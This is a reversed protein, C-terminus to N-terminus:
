KDGSSTVFKGVAIPAYAGVFVQAAKENGIVAVDLTAADLLPGEKVGAAKCVARAREYIKPNLDRAYFPKRPNGVEVKRDGCAPLMSEKPSVRWSDGYRHYLDEFSFPNTLVTGDRAAIENVNGNANALLGRVKATHHGLGVLVDIWSANVTARVSDGSQNTILYVNGRRAVDVGYPTSLSKGDGLDTTKGDITLRDLCIAVKTKGMRTAVASNVSANPWTPAGSVQRTQVVFDPDVEALVFEGSAQFDYLLGKFTTLHTDGVTTAALCFSSAGGASNETAIVAPGPGSASPPTSGFSLNNTEGTFGQAVCNPAATGGYIIKTRTVVTSGSNFNAQGGGGDGVVCFEAINWGAAANVSNDGTGSVMSSGTSFIWSDATASVTGTLSLNALNSIPQNPVVTGMTSNRFWSSTFGAPGQIWGPGPSTTGFYLLWYQIYAGHYAGSAGDNEFIFQEWGQCGPPSGAVTSAFTNTNLQLTYADAVQPGTPNGGANFQGSESTVGTVSDFSGTASSIFGTPAQASVDNGNGVIFARPGSRPVMPNPPAKVSPVERWQKNPYSAEFTGKKPLPTQAMSVRWAELLRAQETSKTEPTPTAVPATTAKPTPKTSETQQSIGAICMSFLFAAVAIPTKM